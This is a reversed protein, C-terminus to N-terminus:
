GPPLMELSSKIWKRDKFLLRLAAYAPQGSRWSLNRLASVARPTYIARHSQRASPTGAAAVLPGRSQELCVAVPQGGYRVRLQAAWAAIAEPTQRLKARERRTSSADRLCLDHEIDAWDIGVYAAFDSM